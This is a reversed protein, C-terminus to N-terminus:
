PFLFIGHSVMTIPKKYSKYNNGSYFINHLMFNKHSLIKYFDFFIVLIGGSFAAWFMGINPDMTGGPATTPDMTGGPATTPDMTGGPATTPDM